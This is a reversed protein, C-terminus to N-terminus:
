KHVIVENLRDLLDDTEFPKSMYNVVGLQAAHLIDAEARRATLLIVPIKRTSWQNRLAYLVEFGNMRPMDVDLVIADPPDNRALTCALVGNDALRYDFGATELSLRVVARITPDDDVVLVMPKVALSVEELVHFENRPNPTIQREPVAHLFKHLLRTLQERLHEWKEPDQSETLGELTRAQRTIAPFGLTGGVGAWRHLANRISTLDLEQVLMRSSTFDSLLERCDAAGTALFEKQLEELPLGDLASATVVPNSMGLFASILGPFLRADVPKNILCACGADHASGDLEKSNDATLLIVVIFKWAPNGKVTRALRIGDMGTLHLDTVIMDPTNVGLRAIAAEASEAVDVVFGAKRVLAATIKLNIPNDDVVLVRKGPIATETTM